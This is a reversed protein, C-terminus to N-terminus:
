YVAVEGLEESEVRLLICIVSTLALSETDCGICTKALETILLNDM